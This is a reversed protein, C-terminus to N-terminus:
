TRAKYCYPKETEWNVPHELCEDCPPETEANEEHQCTACYKDFKVFLEHIDMTADRCMARRATSATTPTLGM